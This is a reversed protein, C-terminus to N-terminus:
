NIRKGDQVLQSYMVGGNKAATKEKKAQKIDRGIASRDAKPNTLLEREYVRQLAGRKENRQAEIHLDLYRARRQSITETPQVVPAPMATDAVPPAPTDGIAEIAALERRLQDLKQEKAIAGATTTEQMAEYKEIEDLKKWYQVDPPPPFAALRKEDQRKGMDKFAEISCEKEFAFDKQLALPTANLATEAQPDNDVCLGGSKGNKGEIETIRIM